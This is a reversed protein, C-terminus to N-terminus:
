QSPSSKLERQYLRFDLATFVDFIVRRVMKNAVLFEKVTQVAIEAAVDNPFHYEGTSICCFAISELGREAVLEMCSRYCSALLERDLQTLPGQIIPGVTHLIFKAPLSYGKTIKAQGVHEEHGQAVMIQNCEDRLQLGAASHIANDICGHCPHFCGLLASNAANVIADVKLLTIDGQWLVIHPDATTPLQMTDVVGKEGREESLLTDQLALFEPNLPAPPRLNMLSRLLRRQSPVDAGLDRFFERYHPLDELLMGNLKQILELREM